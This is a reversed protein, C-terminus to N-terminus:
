LIGQQVLTRLLDRLMDCQRMEDQRMQEFVRAVEPANEQHADDIYEDLADVARGCDSLETVVDYLVNSIAEPKQGGQPQMQAM